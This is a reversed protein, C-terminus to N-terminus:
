HKKSTLTTKIYSKILSITKKKRNLKSLYRNKLFLGQIKRCKANIEEIYQQYKKVLTTYAFDRFFVMNKGFIFEDQDFRPLFDKLAKIIEKPFAPQTFYHRVLWKFRKDFIDYSLKICYGLKKLKITDLIGLYCIQNYVVEDEMMLPQKFSNSKVCRIFHLDCKGLLDIILNNM